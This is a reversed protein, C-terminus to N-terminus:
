NLINLNKFISIEIGMPLAYYKDSSTANFLPIQMRLSSQIYLGKAINFDYAVFIEPQLQFNRFDPLQTNQVDRLRSGDIYHEFDPSVIEETATSSSSLLFQGTIQVGISFYTNFLRYKGGISAGLYDRSSQMQTRYTVLWNDTGNSRPYTISQSFDSKYQRYFVNGFIAIIPKEWYQFSIIFQNLSGSGNKFNLSYVNNEYFPFDGINQNYSYSYGAGVFARPIKYPLRSSYEWDFGQSHLEITAFFIVFLLITRKLESM